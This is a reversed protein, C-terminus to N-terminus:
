KGDGRRLTEYVNLVAQVRYRGAPLEALSRAPYGLTSGDIVAATGPRWGTVDVGFVQQSEGEEDRVEFRPEASADRSLVLLVRGCPAEAELGAPLVVEIRLPSPGAPPRRPCGGPLLAVAALWGALWLAKRVSRARSWGAM